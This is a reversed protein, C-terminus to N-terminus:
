SGLCLGRDLYEKLVEIAEHRLIGAQHDTLLWQRLPYSTGQCHVAYVWGNFGVRVRMGRGTDELM